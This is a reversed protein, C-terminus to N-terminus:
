FRLLKAVLMALEDDVDAEQEAESDDEDQQRDTNYLRIAQELNGGGESAERCDRTRPLGYQDHVAFSAM